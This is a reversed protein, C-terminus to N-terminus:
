AGTNGAIWKAARSKTDADAADSAAIANAINAKDDSSLNMLGELKVFLDVGLPGLAAILSVIEQILLPNM